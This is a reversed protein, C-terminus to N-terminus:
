IAELVARILEGVRRSAKEVSSLVEAHSLRGKTIGCAMNAIVSVGLVRMGEQAAVIVEPVTSMGVADAGIRRFFAIEAKTEYSPGTTALYVGQALRGIDPRRRSIERAKEVLVRSYPESMDVFLPGFEGPDAGVLPNSGLCNIHDTILMISGPRLRRNIGGSANTVVLVRAGLRKSIRVPFTVESLPYGQYYHFRGNFIVTGEGFLLEGKHGQVLGSPGFGPLFGPIEGYRITEKAGLQDAVGALGSGLIVAAKLPGRIRDKLYGVAQEIRRSFGEM